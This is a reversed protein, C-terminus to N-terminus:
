PGAGEPYFYYSFHFMVAIARFAADPLLVRQAAANLGAIWHDGLRYDLGAGLTGVLELAVEDTLDQWCPEEDKGPKLRCHPSFGHNQRGGQWTRRQVGIAAHLTPILRVGFRATIGLDAQFWTQHWSRQVEGAETDVTHVTQGGLRGYGLSAEFAYWNSIAYTAQVGTGVFPATDTDDPADPEGVTARGYHVQAHVSAEGRDARATRGAALCLVALLVIVKISIDFRRREM